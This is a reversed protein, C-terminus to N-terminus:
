LVFESTRAGRQGIKTVNGSRSACEMSYESYFHTCIIVSPVRRLRRTETLLSIGDLEPLQIDALVVDPQLLAIQRLAVLGNPCAGVVDIDRADSVARCVQRVFASDMDAIFCRVSKM